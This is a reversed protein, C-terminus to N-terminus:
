ERQEIAERVGPITKGGYGTYVALAYIHHTYWLRGDLGADRTLLRESTYLLHNIEKSTVTSTKAAAAYATAASQLSCISRSSM